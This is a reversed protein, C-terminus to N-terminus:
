LFVVYEASVPADPKPTYLQTFGFFHQDFSIDTDGMEVQWDGLPNAMLGFLFAPVGGHFAVLAVKEENHYCSPVVATNVTLKSQEDEALNDDIAAKLSTALEGDPQSAPLGTVRFVPGKKGVSATQPANGYPEGQANVDAGKDALLRGSLNSPRGITPEKTSSQRKPRTANRAKRFKRITEDDELSPFDKPHGRPPEFVFDWEGIAPAPTIPTKGEEYEDQASDDEIDDLSDEPLLIHASSGSSFSFSIAQVWEDFGSPYSAKEGDKLWRGGGQDDAESVEKGREGTADTRPVSLPALDKIHSAIHKHLEYLITDPDSTPIVPKLKDPICNCLFCSYEDERILIRQKTRSLTDIQLDSPPQRDPHSEPAKMHAIFSELDDFQHTKEHGIDCYWTSMHIKRNWQKSHVSNMHDVWQKMGVFFLLPTTCEESLCVYPQVDEDLHDDWFTPHNKLRATPLRRACYPCQFDGAGEPFDPKPPYERSSLRVSSGTSITSLTPGKAIHHRAMGVDLHSGTDVSRTRIDRVKAQSTQLRVPLTEPQLPLPQLPVVPDRPAEVKIATEKTTQRRTGLKQEHQMQRLLRKRRLALSAGIQKCLSRRAHPFTNRVILFASNDFFPDDSKEFASSLMFNQSRVSSRRIASAMFHLEDVAQRISETVEEELEHDSDRTEVNELNREFMQLLELVMDRIDNYGKLRFDLCRSLDTLAGTYNIWINFSRAMDELFAADQRSLEGAKGLSLTASSDAQKTLSNLLNLCSITAEYIADDDQNGTGDNNDVAEAM